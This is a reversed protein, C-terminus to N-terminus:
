KPCSVNTCKHNTIHIEKLVIKTASLIFSSLLHYASAFTLTLLGPAWSIHSRVEMVSQDPCYLFDNLTLTSIFWNSKLFVAKQTTVNKFFHKM